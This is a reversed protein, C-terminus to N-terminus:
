WPGGLGTAAARSSLTSRRTEDSCSLQESRVAFDEFLLEAAWIWVIRGVKSCGLQERRVAFDEALLQAARRPDRRALRACRVTM